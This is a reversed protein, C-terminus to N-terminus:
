EPQPEAEPSRFLVVARASSEETGLDAVAGLYRVAGLWELSRQYEERLDRYRARMYSEREAAVARDAQDDSMGQAKLEKYREERWLVIGMRDYAYDQVRDALHQRLVAVDVLAGFTGKAPLRRVLNQLVPDAILRAQPEAAADLVALAAEPLTSVVVYKHGPVVGFAPELLDMDPSAARAAQIRGSPHDHIEGVGLLPLHRRLAQLARETTVTDKVQLVFSVAFEGKWADMQDDYATFDVGEFYSPRHVVLLHTRGLNKAVERLVDELSRYKSSGQANRRIENDITAKADRSPLQVLLDVLVDPALHLVAAAVTREKPIFRAVGEPGLLFRVDTKEQNYLKDIYPAVRKFADAANSPVSVVELELAQPEATVRIASDGVVQPPLIAKVPALPGTAATRVQFTLFQRAAQETLYAEVGRGRRARRIFTREFYNSNRLANGYRRNIAHEIWLDYDSLLLTDKIRALYLTREAEPDTPEIRFPRLAAAAEATLRIRFYAGKVVEIDQADPIKSRVFGRR